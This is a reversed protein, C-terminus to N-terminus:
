VCNPESSEMFGLNGGGWVMVLAQKLRKCGTVAAASNLLSQFNHPFSLKLGLWDFVGQWVVLAFDCYLLLHLSNEECNGCFACAQNDEPRLIRRKYLNVKTPIRDHLLKWLFASVKSPANCKWIAKFATGEEPTVSSGTILMNSIATYTSKVSFLGEKDLRWVWYDEEMSLSTQNILMLLEELLTNEWVFLSRRWTLTWGVTGALNGVEAVIGEKQTSISYLRPFKNMLSFDGLWKDKWFSTQRGNGIREVAYQSFWDTNLNNGISCVDRWWLSSFWPKNEEGIVVKGCASQGYKGIIVKKWM